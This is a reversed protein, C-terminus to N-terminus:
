GRGHPWGDTSIAQSATNPAPELSPGVRDRPMFAPRPATQPAKEGVVEPLRSLTTGCGLLFFWYVYVAHWFHVTVAVVGTALLTVTLARVLQRHELREAVRDAWELDVIIWMFALVLIALAAAGFMIGVYLWLSDISNILWHFRPPVDFELLGTGLLPRSKMNQIGVEWQWLRVYGTQADLLLYRLVYILPNQGLVVWLVALGGATGLVLTTFKRKLGMAFQRWAILAFQVAVALFPGTSLSLFTSFGAGALMVMRKNPNRAYCFWILGIASSCFLGYLIPHDFSVLARTLGLREQHPISTHEGFIAQLTERLFHQGTLSEPLAPIWLLAAVLAIWRFARQYHLTSVMYIRAAFYPVLTELAMIGGTEVATAADQHAAISVPIWLAFTVILLDPTTLRMNLVRLALFPALVILLIRYPMLRMGGIAVSADGPILLAFLLLLTIVNIRASM